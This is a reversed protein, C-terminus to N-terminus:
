LTQKKYELIVGPYNIKCLRIAITNCKKVDYM